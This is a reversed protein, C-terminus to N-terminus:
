ESRAPFDRGHESDPLEPGERENHEPDPHASDSFGNLVAWLEYGM